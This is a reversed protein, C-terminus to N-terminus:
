ITAVPSIFFIFDRMTITYLRMEKILDRACDLISKRKEMLYEESVKPM